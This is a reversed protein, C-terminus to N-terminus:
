DDRDEGKREGSEGRRNKYRTEAKKLVSESDLFVSVREASELSARFSFFAAVLDGDELQEEGTEFVEEAAELDERATESKRAAKKVGKLKKEANKQMREVVGREITALAEEPSVESAAVGQKASRETEPAGRTSSLDAATQMALSIVEPAEAALSTEVVVAEELSGGVAPALALRVDSRERLLTARTNAGKLSRTLAVEDKSTRVRALVEERARLRSEFRTSLEAAALSDSEEIKEVLSAASEVHAELAHALTNETEEDLREEAALASAEAVRREALEIEVVAKEEDNTALALRAPENVTTKITYLLDGPLASEAAYSVGSGIVFVLILVAAIPRYLYVVWMSARTYTTEPKLLPHFRMYGLLVNQMRMRQAESLRIEQGASHIQKEFKKM